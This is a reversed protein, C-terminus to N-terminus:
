AQADAAVQGADRRRAIARRAAAGADGGLLPVGALSEHPSLRAASIQLLPRLDDAEIRDLISEFTFAALDVEGRMVALSTERSGAFGALFDAEIDLLHAAVATNIFNTSGAESIGFLLPRKAAEALVDDMSRLPSNIGTVWVAQNRVIRALITFDRTPNPASTEGTLAAVLLGPANLIGLTLGDPESSKLKNASIVGGAGPTNEVVIDAGIRERFFPELLRSYIDYGGGPPFPVLWRIKRGATEICPAPRRDGQSCGCWNFLLGGGALSLSKVMRRRTLRGKPVPDKM